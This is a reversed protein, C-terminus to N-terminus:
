FSIIISAFISFKLSVVFTKLSLSTVFSLRTGRETLETHPVQEVVKRQLLMNTYTCDCEDEGETKKTYIIGTDETRVILM